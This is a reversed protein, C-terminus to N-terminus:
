KKENEYEMSTPCIITGDQLQVPKNKIPGLLDGHKSRGLKRPESWTQGDDESTVLMGWWESPSPGVKYFLM